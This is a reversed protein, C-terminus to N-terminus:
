SIAEIRIEDHRIMHSIGPRIVKKLSLAHDKLTDYLNKYLDALAETMM